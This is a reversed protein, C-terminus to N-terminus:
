AGEKWGDKTAIQNIKVQVATWVGGGKNEPIHDSMELPTVILLYRRNEDIRWLYFLYHKASKAVDWENSSIFVTADDLKKTSTKSEIYLPDLSGPDTVSLVDYGLLNSDISVQVPDGGTRKREYEVTLQEGTRGEDLLAIGNDSRVADSVEDWWAITDKDYGSLLNAESFCRKEEESLFLCMEQRGYVVRGSWAPKLACIYKKIFLRSILVLNKLKNDHASVFDDVEDPLVYYGNKSTVIKMSVLTDIINKPDLSVFNSLFEVRDDKFIPNRHVWELIRYSDYILTSSLSLM